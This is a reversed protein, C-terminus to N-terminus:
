TPGSVLTDLDVARMNEVAVGQRRMIEISIDMLGQTNSVQPTKELTTNMFLAKLDSFDWTEQSCLEAQM